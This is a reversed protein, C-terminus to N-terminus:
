GAYGHLSRPRINSGGLEDDLGQIMRVAHRSSWTFERTRPRCGEMSVKCFRSTNALMNIQVRGAELGKSPIWNSPCVGRVMYEAGKMVAFGTSPAKAGGGVGETTGLGTSCFAGELVSSLTAEIDITQVGQRLNGFGEGEGDFDQNPTIHVWDRDVAGEDKKKRLSINGKDEHIWEGPLGSFIM